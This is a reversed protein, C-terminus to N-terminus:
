DPMTPWPYDQRYFFSTLFASDQSIKSSCFSFFSKTYLVKGFVSFDLLWAQFHVNTHMCAVFLCTSTYKAQATANSHMQTKLKKIISHQQEVGDIKTFHLTKKEM